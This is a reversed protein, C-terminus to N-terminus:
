LYHVDTLELSVLANYLLALRNMPSPAQRATVKKLYSSGNKGSVILGM